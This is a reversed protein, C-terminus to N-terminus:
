YDMQFEHQCGAWLDKCSYRQIRTHLGLLEGLLNRWIDLGYAAEVDKTFSHKLDVKKKM